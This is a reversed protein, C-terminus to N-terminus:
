SPWGRVPALPPTADTANLGSPCVRAAPSMVAGHPQPVKRGRHQAARALSTLETANLGSPRVRAAPLASSLTHSHFTALGACGTCIPWSSVPGSPRCTRRLDTANLGSPRVRAAPLPSSLTHSHFTVVGRVGYLDALGEGARGAGDVRHREARVPPGQGAAAEIALHPQPVDGVRCVM